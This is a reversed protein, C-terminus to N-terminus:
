NVIIHPSVKKHKQSGHSIGRFTRNNTKNQKKGGQPQQKPTACGIIRAKIACSTVALEPGQLDNCAVKEAVCDSRERM